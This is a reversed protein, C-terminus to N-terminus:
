PKRIEDPTLARGFIRVDDLGGVFHQGIAGGPDFAQGLLLDRVGGVATADKMPTELKLATDIYISVNAGDKVCTIRHWKTDVLGTTVGTLNRDVNFFACSINAIAPATGPAIRVAYQNQNDLIGLGTQPIEVADASLFLDITMPGELDLSETHTVKVVSRMDVHIATGGTTGRPIPMINVLSADNHNATGDRAVDHHGDTLEDFTLCLELDHQNACISPPDDVRFVIDCAGLWLWLCCWAVARVMAEM